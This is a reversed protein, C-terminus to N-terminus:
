VDDSYARISDIELRFPTTDKDSIGIAFSRISRPDLDPSNPVRFGMVSHSLADFPVRVDIWEGDVTEFDVRWINIENRADRKLASFTYRRGDGKVRLVVGDAGALGLDTARSRVTAFGGNNELSLAGRFVATGNGTLEYRCTSIGGMVDDNVPVWDAEAGDFAFVFDDSSSSAAAALDDGAGDLLALARDFGERLAWARSAPDSMRMANALATEIATKVPAPADADLEVLALAAMEYVAACAAPQGNNYLPAGRDIAALILQGASTSMAASEKAPPLLVTDIVHVVGNSASLDNTLVTADGIRLRGERLAVSLEGGEITQVSGAALADAASARGQAVHYTLINVLTDRNAPDLLTELTGDPLAAFAEESPAFVTFPGEGALTGALGAAEVAANLTPLTAALDLVTPAEGENVPSLAAVSTLLTALLM